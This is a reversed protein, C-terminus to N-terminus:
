ILAMDTKELTTFAMQSKFQVRSHNKKGMTKDFETTGLSKKPFTKARKERFIDVNTYPM